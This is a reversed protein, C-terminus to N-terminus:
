RSNTSQVSGLLRYRSVPVVEGYPYLMSDTKQALYVERLFFFRNSILLSSFLDPYFSACMLLKYLPFFLCVILDVTVFSHRYTSICVSEPLMIACNVDVPNSGEVRIIVDTVM